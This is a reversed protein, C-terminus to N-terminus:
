QYSVFVPVPQKAITYAPSPTEPDMEFFNKWGWRWHADETGETLFFYTDDKTPTPGQGDMQIVMQLEPRQKLTERDLIMRSQFQQILIMKQPLGNDRVLDALWDVVTNVEAATVQGAQVLHVQDPQLRWEPDLALGVFPLKLLEEYLKAQTLFDERGPQLDLVIYMGNEEAVRVWAEFTSIPWEFSYDGDDTPKASAVTAIMEFTPIIQYGDAAYETLFPQMRALTEEPGQQGLVGLGTTEPHGYFAVYRRPQDEPFVFFGGGPVQQGRVLVALEWPDADPVTGVYRISEPARGALAAAVEPHGLIEAPDYAVVGAGVARGTGSASLIAVPNAADMLWISLADTSHALGELIQNPEFTPVVSAPTSPPSTQPLVVRDQANIAGVTEVITSADPTSPLRLEDTVGLARKTEDVAGSISHRLIIADPPIVAELDGVLHVRSPKLRGLEAALQPHPHLLPGGLAAALQAAAAVENIDAEGVVVVDDACVFIEGSLSLADGAVSGTAIPTGGGTVRICERNGLSSTTVQSDATTGAGSTETPTEGVISTCSVLTLAALCLRTTNM